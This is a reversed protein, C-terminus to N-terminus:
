NEWCTNGGIQTYYGGIKQWFRECVLDGSGTQGPGSYLPTWQKNGWQQNSINLGWGRPGWFQFHGYLGYGGDLRAQVGTVNNTCRDIQISLDTSDGGEYGGFCWNPSKATHSARDGRVRQHGSRFDRRPRPRRRM